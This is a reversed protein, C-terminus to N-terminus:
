RNKEYTVAVILQKLIVIVLELVHLYWLHVKSLYRIYKHLWLQVKNHHFLNLPRDETMLYFIDFM